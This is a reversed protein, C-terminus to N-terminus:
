LSDLVDHGVAFLNKYSQDLDEPLGSLFLLVGGVWDAVAHDEAKADGDQLLYGDHVQDDWNEDLLIDDREDQGLDFLM